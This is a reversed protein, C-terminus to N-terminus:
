NGLLYKSSCTYGYYVNMGQKNICDDASAVSPDIVGLASPRIVNDFIFFIYIDRGWTNPGQFGNVDMTVWGCRNDYDSSSNNKCTTSELRFMLNTGDNLVLGSTSDENLLFWNNAARGNLWKANASNIFCVGFNVGNNTDCEKIYHLKQKFVNKILNSGSGTGSGLAANFDGGNETKLLQFAESLVSYEKRMQAKFENNQINMMLTPITMSAVVGIIGLTILVEALTFGFRKAM